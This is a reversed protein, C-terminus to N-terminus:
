PRTTSAPPCLSPLAAQQRWSESTTRRHPAGAIGAASSDPIGKVDKHVAAARRGAQAAAAASAFAHWLLATGGRLDPWTRAQSRPYQGFDENASFQTPNIYISAVVIDCRESPYPCLSLHSSHQLLAQLQGPSLAAAASCCAHQCSNSVTGSPRPLHARRAPLGPFWPLHLWLVGVLDTGAAPSRQGAGHCDALKARERVMTPVFGITKGERRQQRSFTRMESPNAFIAPAM